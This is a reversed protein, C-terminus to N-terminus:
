KGNLLTIAARLAEAIDDPLRAIEVQEPLSSDSLGNASVFQDFAQTTLVFGNPVPFNAHTLEGLNAAKAGVRSVDVRTVDRLPVIYTANTKTVMPKPAYPEILTQTEM